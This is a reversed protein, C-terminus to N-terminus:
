NIRNKRSRMYKIDAVVLKINIFLKVYLIRKVSKGALSTPTKKKILTILHSPQKM